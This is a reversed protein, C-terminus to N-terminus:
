VWDRGTFLEKGNQRSRASCQGGFTSWVSRSEPKQPSRPQWRRDDPGLDLNDDPVDMKAKEFIKPNAVIVASNIGANVGVLKDNIKGSDVTGEFKSTDVSGSGASRRSGYESIYNMDM